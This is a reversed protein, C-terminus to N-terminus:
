NLSYHYIALKRETARTRFNHIQIDYTNESRVDPADLVIKEYNNEKIYNWVYANLQKKTEGEVGSVGFSSNNRPIIWDPPEVFPIKVVRTMDTYFIIANAEHGMVFSDKPSGNQRLYSATAGVPGKYHHTLEYLYDFLSFRLVAKNEIQDIYRRGLETNSMEKSFANGSIKNFGTLIFWPVAHFLNTTVLLVTLIFAIKVNIKKIRHCFWALFFYILPLAGAIYNQIPMAQITAVSIISCIVIFPLAHYSVSETLMENKRYLIPIFVCFILPFIYSNVQALYGVYSKIIWSLDISYDQGILTSLYPQINKLAPVPYYFFWPMTFVAIVLSLTIFKRFSNKNRVFVMFHIFIGIFTSAFQIYMSHFLLISTFVFKMGGRRKNELVDLYYNMMLIVLPFPLSIYRATRSYLLCPVSFTYFVTAFRAISTSKSIRLAFMYLIPITIYGFLVFPFLAAFSTYGFFIYSLAPLYFSIWSHQAWVNNITFVPDGILNKGDWITPLGFQLIYKGLMATLGEDLKLYQDGLNWFFLFSGVLMVSILFTKDPCSNIFNVCSEHIKKVFIKGM